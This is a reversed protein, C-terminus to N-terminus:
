HRTGPQSVEVKLQGSQNIGLKGLATIQRHGDVRGLYVVHKFAESVLRACLEPSLGSLLGLADLRAPVAELSSAHVTTGVGGHGTNLATLLTGFEAGRAEGLVLRDPRMRLSQRVLEPLSVEGVGEINPQRSELGVVHPHDIVLEATDEVTILRETEPVTAMLASLLTTKGSGTAGALIVNERRALVATLFMSQEPSLMGQSVLQALTFGRAAAMRVSILTGSTSVPPLVAHVRIGEGARVDICPHAEDLHRGGRAILYRAAQRVQPESFGYEPLHRLGQGDDIWVGLSSNILLDTLGPRALLNEIQSIVLSIM